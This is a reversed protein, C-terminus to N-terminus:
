SATINRKNGYGTITIRGPGLLYVAQWTIGPIPLTRTLVMHHAPLTVWALGAVPVDVGACTLLLRVECHFLYIYLYITLWRIPLNPILSFYNLILYFHQLKEFVIKFRHCFNNSYLNVHLLLYQICVLLGQNCILMSQKVLLSHPSYSYGLPNVSRHRYGPWLDIGTDGLRSRVWTHGTDAMGSHIRWCRICLYVNKSIYM